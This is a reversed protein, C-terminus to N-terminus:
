RGQLSKIVNVSGSSAASIDHTLGYYQQVALYLAILGATWKLAQRGTSGM